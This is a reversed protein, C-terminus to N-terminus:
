GRNSVNIFVESLISFDVLHHKSLFFAMTLINNCVQTGYTPLLLQRNFKRSNITLAVPAVSGYSLIGPVSGYTRVGPPCNENKGKKLNFVVM